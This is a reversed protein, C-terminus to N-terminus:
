SAWSWDHVRWTGNPNLSVGNLNRSYAIVADTNMVPITYANENVLQALEAIIDMRAQGSAINAAFCLEQAEEWKDFLPGLHEQVAYFTNMTSVDGLSGVTSFIHLDFDGAIEAANLAGSDLPVIDVNVGIQWLQGQIIQAALEQPTGANVIFRLAQGDYNSQELYDRAIDLDGEWPPAYFSGPGPVGVFWYPAGFDLPTAAGGAAGLVIDNKNIAYQIARRLNLDDRLISDLHPRTNLRTLTRASSPVTLYTAPDNDTLSKASAVDALHVVDVDGARLSIFATNVNAVPRIRIVDIAPRGGFYDDFARLVIEQGSVRSEFMFPGTGIPHANYAEAGVEEYHRRNIIAGARSTTVAPFGEFPAVLYFKVTYDDIAVAERLNILLNTALPQNNSLTLNFSFAVDDATMKDGNHFFVDDRLHFIYETGDESVEWGTAVWPVVQGNEDMWALHAMVNYIVPGDRNMQTNIDVSQMFFNVPESPTAIIVETAGAPAATQGPETVGGPAPQGDGAGPTTPVCSALLALVLTMTVIFILRRSRQM